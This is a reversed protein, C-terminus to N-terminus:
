GHFGRNLQGLSSSYSGISYSASQPHPWPNQTLRHSDSSNVLDLLCEYRVLLTPPFSPSQGASPQEQDQVQHDFRLRCRHGSCGMSSHQHHQTRPLPDSWFLIVSLQYWSSSSAWSPHYLLWQATGATKRQYLFLSTEQSTSPSRLCSSWQEGLLANPTKREKNLLRTKSPSRLRLVSDKICTYSITKSTLAERTEWINSTNKKKSTM